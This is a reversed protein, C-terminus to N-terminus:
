RRLRKQAKDIGTEFACIKKQWHRILGQDPFDKELERSVKEQHEVIRQNLSRISKEHNKKGMLSNTLYILMLIVIALGTLAYFRYSPRDCKM